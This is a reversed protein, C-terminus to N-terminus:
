ALRRRILGRCNIGSGNGDPFAEYPEWLDVRSFGAAEAVSRLVIIGTDPEPDPLNSALGVRRDVVMIETENILAVGQDTEVQDAVAAIDAPLSTMPFGTEDFFTITLGTRNVWRTPTHM